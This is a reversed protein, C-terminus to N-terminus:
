RRGRRQRRPGARVDAVLVPERRSLGPLALLRKAATLVVSGAYGFLWQVRYHNVLSVTQKEKGYDIRNRDDM